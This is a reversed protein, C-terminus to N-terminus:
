NEFNQSNDISSVLIIDGVDSHGIATSIINYM